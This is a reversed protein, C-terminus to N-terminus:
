HNRNESSWDAITPNESQSWGGFHTCTEAAAASANQMCVPIEAGKLWYALFTGIYSDGAGLTDVVRVPIAPQYYLDGNYALSGGSGLTVVVLCPGQSFKSHALEEAESRQDENMSFFALDVFPLTCAIFEPHSREGYDVSVMLGAVRSFHSLYAETGGAMTNHVLSHQSIFNLTLEDLELIPRPGLYEHIFQREGSPTLRIHTTATQGPVIQVYSVDVGEERLKHLTLEGDADDGVAGIYATPIGARCLHVALNVANGGIYRRNIPPLYFDVCNDGVCVASVTM